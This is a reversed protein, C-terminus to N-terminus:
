KGKKGVISVVLYYERGEGMDDASLMGAGALVLAWFFIAAGASVTTLAPAAESGDRVEKEVEVSRGETGSTGGSEVLETTSPFPSSSASSAESSSSPVVVV